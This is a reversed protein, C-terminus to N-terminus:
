TLSVYVHANRGSRTKITKASKAVKGAKELEWLRASVTQHKWETIEEIEDCALPGDTDLMTLIRERMAAARPQIREAAEISTDVNAAPAATM